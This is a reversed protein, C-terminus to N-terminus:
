QVTGGVPDGEYQPKRAKRSTSPFPRLNRSVDTAVCIAGEVDSKAEVSPAVVCSTATARLRSGFVAKSARMLVRLQLPM